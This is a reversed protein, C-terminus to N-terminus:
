PAREAAAELVEIESAVIGSSTSRCEVRVIQRPKCESLGAAAGRARIPVGEPVQIQQIRLAHGVGTIVRITRTSADVSRVTATLSLPRALSSAPPPSAPTEGRADGPLGGLLAVSLSLVIFSERHRM